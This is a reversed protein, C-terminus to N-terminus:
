SAFPPFTVHVGSSLCHFELRKEDCPFFDPMSLSLPRL